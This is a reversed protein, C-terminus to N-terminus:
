GQVGKGNGGTTRSSGPKSLNHSTGPDGTKKGEEKKQHEDGVQKDIELLASNISSLFEILIRLVYTLEQYSYSGREPMSIKAEGTTLNISFNWIDEKKKIVSLM